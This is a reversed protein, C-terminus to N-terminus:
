YIEKIYEELKAIAESMNKRAFGVRFYNGEYNYVNGPLLMVGKSKLLNISFNEISIGAKLKPFGIPGALPRNWEFYKQNDNFFSDLLDLNKNIIDINRKFIKGKARLGMIALIESPASSCITTYDKYIAFKNLFNDNKTVLWGIRLGALAFSKSMGFLSIANEYLDCVSPNRNIKNHELCCILPQFNM